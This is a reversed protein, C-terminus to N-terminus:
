SYENLAEVLLHVTTSPNNQAPNPPDYQLLLRRANQIAISQKEELKGYMDTSNKKYPKGMCRTLKEEYQSRHLAADHYDYHLLYWLEFAQNSYAARIDNREALLVAENFNAAPFDDHDFVCWVQDYAKEKKLRIAEEVLSVTNYGLGHVETSAKDLRFDKFYNPETKAGECVILFLARQDKIRQKRTVRSKIDWPSKRSSSM